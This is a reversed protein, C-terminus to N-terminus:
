HNLLLASLSEKVQRFRPKRPLWLASRFLGSAVRKVSNYQDETMGGRKFVSSTFEDVDQKALPGLGKQRLPEAEDGVSPLVPKGFGFSPRDVFLLAITIASSDKDNMFEDCIALWADICAQFTRGRGSAIAYFVRTQKNSQLHARLSDAPDASLPIACNDAIERILDDRRKSDVPNQAFPRWRLEKPGAFAQESIAEKNLEVGCRQAFVAPDDDVDGYIAIVRYGEDVAKRVCPTEVYRDLPSFFQTITEHRNRTSSKQAIQKCLGNLEDAWKSSGVSFAFYQTKDIISQVDDPLGTPKSAGNVLVPIIRAGNQQATLIEQRVWDRPSQLKERIEAEQWRPTIVLILYRCQSVANFISTPWQVGTNISEDDKFVYLAPLRDRIGDALLKTWGGSDARYYSLFIDFQQGNM